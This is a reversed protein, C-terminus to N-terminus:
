PEDDTLPISSLHDVGQVIIVDLCKQGLRDGMGFM